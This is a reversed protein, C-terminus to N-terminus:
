VIEEFVQREKQYFIGVPIKSNKSSYDFEEARELAEKLNTKDHGKEQLNYLRSKYDSDPHFILCPQLVEIFAFGKHKHAEELINKIQSVDAFVRAVFSASRFLM